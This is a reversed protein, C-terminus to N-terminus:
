LSTPWSFSYFALSSSMSVSTLLPWPPLLPTTPVAGCAGLSDSLSCDCCQTNSSQPLMKRSESISHSPSTLSFSKTGCGRACRGSGCSSPGSRSSERPSSAEMQRGTQGTRPEPLWMHQAPVFGLSASSDCPTPPSSCLKSAM